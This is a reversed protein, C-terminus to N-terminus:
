AKRHHQVISEQTNRWLTYGLVIWAFGFLLYVASLGQIVVFAIPVSLMATIILLWATWHPMVNTRLISIGILLSAASLLIAGFVLFGGGLQAIWQYDTGWVYKGLWMDGINGFVALLLALIALRYGFIETRGPHGSLRAHLGIYGLLLLLLALGQPRGFVYLVEDAPAFRRALRVVPEVIPRATVVWGISTGGHFAYTELLTLIVVLVGGIMAALGSRCIHTDNM